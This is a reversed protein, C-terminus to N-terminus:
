ILRGVPFYVHEFIDAISNFEKRLSIVSEKHFNENNLNIFTCSKPSNSLDINSSCPNVDTGSILLLNYLIMKANKEFKCVM